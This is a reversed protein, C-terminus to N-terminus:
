LEHAELKNVRTAPPLESFSDRPTIIGKRLLFSYNEKRHKWLSSSSRRHSNIMPCPSQSKLVLGGSSLKDTEKSLISSLSYPVTRHLLISNFHMWSCGSRLQDNTFQVLILLKNSSKCISWFQIAMPILDLVPCTPKNTRSSHWLKCLTANLFCQFFAALQTRGNLSSVGPWKVPKRLSNVWCTWEVPESLLNRM